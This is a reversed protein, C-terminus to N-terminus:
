SWRGDKMEDKLRTKGARWRKDRREDKRVILLMKGYERM